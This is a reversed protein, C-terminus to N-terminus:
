SSAICVSHVYRTGFTDDELAGYWHPDMRRIDELEIGCFDGKDLPNLNSNMNVPFECNEWIATDAARPMTSTMITCPFPLGGNEACGVEHRYSSLGTISTGTYLSPHSAIEEQAHLFEMSEKEIFEKLKQKFLLGEPGLKEGKRLPRADMFDPDSLVLYDEDDTRENTPTKGPRCLFIPRTGVNWAMIAPVIVKAMRGYIHNVLVKSSLNFIKIYSQSENTLTEYAEEYKRVRNELDAMAEEEPVGDYDPSNAVKFRYNLRLLDEDDCISEVFVVGTPKGARQLPHTCQELIWDRRANTSNTADFIAIRDGTESTRGNSGVSKRSAPSSPPSATNTSETDTKDPSHDYEEGGDLWRLMDRLALEAVRERLKAAEENKSDFFSADCQNNNSNQQPQDGEVAQRRYRGVNFIKCKHEGWNLFTHLKRSIFSKGRAPLGVLVIVLRESNRTM